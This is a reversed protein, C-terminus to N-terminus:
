DPLTLERLDFYVKRIWRGLKKSKPNVSELKGKVGVLISNNGRFFHASLYLNEFPPNIPATVSIIGRDQDCETVDLQYDNFLNLTEEFTEEYTRNKFLVM